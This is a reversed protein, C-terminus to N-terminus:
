SKAWRRIQPGCSSIWRASRDRTSACAAPTSAAGSSGSHTPRASRSFRTPRHSFSRGHGVLGGAARRQPGDVPYSEVRRQAPRLPSALPRAGRGRDDMGSRAVRRREPGRRHWARREGRASSRDVRARLGGRVLRVRPGARHLPSVSLLRRHQERQDRDGCQLAARDAPLRDVVVVARAGARRQTRHPQRRRASSMEQPRCRLPRLLNEHRASIDLGRTAPSQSFAEALSAACRPRKDTQPAAEGAAGHHFGADCRSPRHRRASLARRPLM